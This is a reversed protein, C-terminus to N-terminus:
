LLCSLDPEPFGNIPTPSSCTNATPSSCPTWDRCPLLLEAAAPLKRRGPCWSAAPPPPQPLRRGCAPPPARRPPLRSRAAARPHPRSPSPLGARLLPPSRDLCLRRGRGSSSSSSASLQPRADPTAPFRACSPHIPEHRLRRPEM